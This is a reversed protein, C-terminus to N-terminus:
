FAAPITPGTSSAYLFGSQMAGVCLGHNGLPAGSVVVSGVSGREPFYASHLGTEISLVKTSNGYRVTVQDGNVASSALYALRLVQTGAQTRSTFRVVAQDHSVRQCGRSGRPFPVSTPGYVGTQHLRGDLGFALLHDITGAPSSTWRINAAAAPSETPGIVLFERDSQEFEPIMVAAPVPQNLIVTGAPAEAVAARANEIFIKVPLSTTDSQFAQVSYVSGIIFAGVLGAAVLRGPQAQTGQLAALRRKQRTDALGVVPLFALGLCIALIPVADSVYRTELGLLAPGGPGLEGIRGLLVPVADALLLWVALIAWARWAYRRSWISARIVCAAVILSLWVLAVPPSSYAWEAGGQLTTQPFWQWPGGLAGPIFTDKVMDWIFTAVGGATGPIGPQVTSTHLSGALVLVYGGLVIIQMVWGRWYTLLCRLMAKPWPGDMLFGSSVGFLVLPLVMAKEFFALGILV